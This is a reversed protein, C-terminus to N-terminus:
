EEVVREEVQPVFTIRSWEESTATPKKRPTTTTMAKSM